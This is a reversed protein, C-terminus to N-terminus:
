GLRPELVVVQTEEPLASTTIKFSTEQQINGIGMEKLFKELPLLKISTHPTHYHMPIVYNPEILGIVEAAQAPNLAGGGGVPVLALNVEGLAEIESQSPVRSLDGLHLVTLPDFDFLYLTNPLEKPSRKHGNTSFGTIFVGGIEYEGPGTIVHKAGKVAPLYGHGPTNHSITVIDTRLKLPAYGAVNHDYPDTVVSAMGREVMRFCSHGYWTIEM